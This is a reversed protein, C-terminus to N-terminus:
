PESVSDELLHSLLQPIQRAEVKPRYVRPSQRLVLLAGNEKWSSHFPSVHVENAETTTVALKKPKWGNKQQESIFKYEVQEDSNSECSLVCLLVNINIQHSLSLFFFNAPSCRILSPVAISVPLFCLILNCTTPLLILFCFM